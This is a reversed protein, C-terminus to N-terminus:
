PKPPKRRPDEYILIVELLRTPDMYPVGVKSVGLEGFVNNLEMHSERTKEM